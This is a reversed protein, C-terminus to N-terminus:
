ASLWPSNLVPECSTPETTAPFSQPRPFASIPDAQTPDPGDLSNVIGHRRCRRGHTRHTCSPVDGRTDVRGPARNRDFLSHGPERDGREREDLGSAAGRRLIRAAHDLRVVAIGRSARTGSCSLPPAAEVAVGRAEAVQTSSSFGSGFRASSLRSPIMAVDTVRECAEMQPPHIGYCIVGAHHGCQCYRGRNKGPGAAM